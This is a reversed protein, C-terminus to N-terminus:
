ELYSPVVALRTHIYTSLDTDPNPIYRTRARLVEPCGRNNAARTLVDDLLRNEQFPCSVAPPRPRAM